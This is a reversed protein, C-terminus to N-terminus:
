TSWNIRPLRTSWTVSIRSKVGFCTAFTIPFTNFDATAFATAISPFILM